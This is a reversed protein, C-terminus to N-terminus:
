HLVFITGARDVSVVCGYPKRLVVVDTIGEMHTRLLRQQAASIISSRPPKSAVVASTTTSTSPTGSQGPIPSVPTSITATAPRTPRKPTNRASASASAGGVEDGMREQVLAIQAGASLALPYTVDYKPKATTTDEGLLQPGSIIFSNEPRQMDWYRLDRDDGGTFLLAHKYPEGPQSPNHLYDHLIYVAPISAPLAAKSSSAAHPTTFNGKIPSGNSSDGPTPHLEPEVLADDQAVEQAFRSLVKESNEDDPSWTQYPRTKNQPHFTSPRLVERCV